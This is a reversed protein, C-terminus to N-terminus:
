LMHSSLGLGAFSTPVRFDIRPVCTPVYCRGHSYLHPVENQFAKVLGPVDWLAMGTAGGEVRGNRGLAEEKRLDTRLGQGGLELAM